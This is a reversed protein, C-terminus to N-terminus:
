VSVPFVRHMTTAKAQVCYTRFWEVTRTLGDRLEFSPTFKLVKQMRTTDMSRSHQGNPRAADWRIEGRYGAVEAVLSALDRVSIVQGSGVNVPPAGDYSEAACVIAAAADEVYLFERVASGDGWLTISKQQTEAAEVCKRVLAPVVHSHEPDFHDRPGYLNALILHVANLGYQARYADGQTLLMRKAIAYAENSAHPRGNWLHEEHFPVPLGDPYACVSGITVIKTVGRLAAEHLVHIGMLANDYFFDAPADLNACIGGVRGALHIVVSPQHDDYM